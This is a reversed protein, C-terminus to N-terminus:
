LIFIFDVMDHVFSFIQRDADVDVSLGDVVVIYEVRFCTLYSASAVTLFPLSSRGKKVVWRAFARCLPPYSFKLCDSGVDGVGLLSGICAFCHNEFYTFVAFFCNSASPQTNEDPELTDSM